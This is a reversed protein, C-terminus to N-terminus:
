PNMSFVGDASGKFDPLKPTLARNPGLKEIRFMETASLLIFRQNAGQSPQQGLDGTNTANGALASCSVPPRSVPRYLSV